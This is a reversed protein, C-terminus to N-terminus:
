KKIKKLNLTGLFILLSLIIVVIISLLIKKNDIFFNKIKESRTNTNIIEIDEDM